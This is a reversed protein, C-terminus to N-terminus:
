WRALEVLRSVLEDLEAATERYRGMSRRYPDAIDDAPSERFLESATRERALRRVWDCVDEHRGRPGATAARAVLDRFQFTRHWTSGDILVVARLHQHTMTIVLDRGDHALLEPTISRSTEHAMTAGLESMVRQARQDGAMPFADTGASAAAVTPGRGTLRARLLAAAMPSRCVNATCVFLVRIGDDQPEIDSM